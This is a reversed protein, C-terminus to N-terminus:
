IDNLLLHTPTNHVFCFFRRRTFPSKKANTKPSLATLIFSPPHSPRHHFTDEGSSYSETLINSSARVDHAFQVRILSYYYFHFASQLIVTVCRNLYTLLTFGHISSFPRSSLPASTLLLFQGYVQRFKVAFSSTHPLAM